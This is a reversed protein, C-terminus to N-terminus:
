SLNLSIDPGGSRRSLIEPPGDNTSGKESTVIDVITVWGKDAGLLHLQFHCTSGNAEALVLFARM